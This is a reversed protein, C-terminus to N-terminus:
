PLPGPPNVEIRLWLKVFSIVPTFLFAIKSKIISLSMLITPNNFNDYFYKYENKLNNYLTM